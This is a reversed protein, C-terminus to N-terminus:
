RVLAGLGDPGPGVAVVEGSGVGADFAECWPLTHVVKKTVVALAASSAASGAMVTTAPSGMGEVESSNRPITPTWTSRPTMQTMAPAAAMSLRLCGPPVRAEPGDIEPAERGNEDGGARERRHAPGLINIEEDEPGHPEGGRQDPPRCLPLAPSAPQPQVDSYSCFVCCDGPKPKLIAAGM